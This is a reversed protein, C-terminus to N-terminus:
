VAESRRGGGGGGAGCTGTYDTEKQEKELIEGEEEGGRGETARRQMGVM